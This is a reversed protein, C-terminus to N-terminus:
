GSIYDKYKDIVEEEGIISGLSDLSFKAQDPGKFLYKFLYLFIIAISCINVYIHYDLLELLM